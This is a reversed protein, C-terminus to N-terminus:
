VCRSTYLLCTRSVELLDGLAGSAPTSEHAMCVKLTRPEGGGSTVTITKTPRILVSLLWNHSYVRTADHYTRAAFSTETLPSFIDDAMDKPKRVKYRGTGIRGPIAPTPDPPPLIRNERTGIGVGAAAARRSLLLDLVGM